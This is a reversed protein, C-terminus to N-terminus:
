AHPLAELKALMARFDPVLERADLPSVAILEDLLKTLPVEIFLPKTSNTGVTFGDLTLWVRAEAGKGEKDGGCNVVEVDIGGDVKINM